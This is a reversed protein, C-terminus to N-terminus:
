LGLARVPGGRGLAICSCNIANVQKNYVTGSALWIRFFDFHQFMLKKRVFLEPVNEVETM